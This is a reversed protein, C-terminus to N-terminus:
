LRMRRASLICYIVIVICIACILANLAYFYEGTQFAHFLDFFTLFLAPILVFYGIMMHREIKDNTKDKIGVVGLRRCLETELFTTVDITDSFNSIDTNYMDEFLVTNNQM